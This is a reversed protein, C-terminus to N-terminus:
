TRDERRRRRGQTHLLPPADISFSYLTETWDGSILSLLLFLLLSHCLLALSFRSEDEGSEGLKLRRGKYQLLFLSDYWASSKEGRWTRQTSCCSPSPRTHGFAAPTGPRELRSLECVCVCICVLASSVCACVRLEGRDRACM